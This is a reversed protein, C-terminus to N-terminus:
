RDPDAREGPTAQEGQDTLTPFKGQNVWADRNPVPSRSPGEANLTPWTM